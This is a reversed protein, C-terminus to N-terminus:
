NHTIDCKYIHSPVDVDFLRMVLNKSLIKNRNSDITVIYQKLYKVWVGADNM